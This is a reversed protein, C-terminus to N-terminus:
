EPLDTRSVKGAEDQVLVQVKREVEELRQLCDRSLSVGKEFAKLQSELPQDGKELESIIKELEQLSTEFTPPNSTKSAM